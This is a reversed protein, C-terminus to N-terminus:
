TCDAFALGTFNSCGSVDLANLHEARRLLHSIAYDTLKSSNFEVLELEKCMEAIYIVIEDWIYDGLYLHTLSAKLSFFIM